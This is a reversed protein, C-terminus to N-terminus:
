HRHLSNFLLLNALKARGMLPALDRALFRNGGDRAFAIRPRSNRRARRRITRLLAFYVRMLRRPLWWTAEASHWGSVGHFRPSIEEVGADSAWRGARPRKTAIFVPLVLPPPARARSPPRNPTYLFCLILNREGRTRLIRAKTIRRGSHPSTLDRREL